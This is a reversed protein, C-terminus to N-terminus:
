RAITWNGCVGPDAKWNSPDSNHAWMKNEREIDNSMSLDESFNRICKQTLIGMYLHLGLVAFVFLSFLALVTVHKLNWISVLM